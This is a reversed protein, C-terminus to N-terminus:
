RRVGVCVLVSVVCFIRRMGRDGGGQMYVSAIVDYKDRDRELHLVWSAIRDWDRSSNMITACSCKSRMALHIDNCCVMYQISSFVLYLSVSAM